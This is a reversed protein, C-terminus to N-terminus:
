KKFSINKALKGCIHNRCNTKTKTMFKHYDKSLSETPQMYSSDRPKNSSLIILLDSMTKDFKSKEDILHQQIKRILDLSRNMETKDLCIKIKKLYLDLIYFDQEQAVHAMAILLFIEMFKVQWALSLCDTRYMHMALRILNEVLNKLSRDEERLMKMASNYVSTVLSGARVFFYVKEEMNLVHVNVGENAFYIARLLFYQGQRLKIPNTLTSNRLKSRINFSKLRELMEKRTIAMSKKSQTKQKPELVKLASRLMTYLYLPSKETDCLPLRKCYFSLLLMVKTVKNGSHQDEAQLRLRTGLGLLGTWMNFIFTLRPAWDNKKYSFISAFVLFIFSVFEMLQGWTLVVFMTSIKDLLEEMNLLIDQLELQQKKTEYCSCKGTDSMKFLWCDVTKSFPMFDKVNFKLPLEKSCSDPDIGLAKEIDDTIEKDLRVLKDECSMTDEAIEILHHQNFAPIRVFLLLFQSFEATKMRSKLLILTQKIHAFHILNALKGKIQRAFLTHVRKKMGSVTYNRSNCTGKETFRVLKYGWESNERKSLIVTDYVAALYSKSQQASNRPVFCLNAVFSPYAYRRLILTRSNEVTKKEPSALCLLNRIGQCLGLFYRHLDICNEPVNCLSNRLFARAQPSFRAPFKFIMTDVKCMYVGREIRASHLSLCLLIALVIEIFLDSASLANFEILRLLKMIKNSNLRSSTLRNEDFKFDISDKSGEIKHKIIYQKLYYKEKIEIESTNLDGVTVESVNQKRYAIWMLALVHQSAQFASQVNKQGLQSIVVKLIATCTPSTETPVAALTQMVKNDCDGNLHYVYALWAQFFLIEPVTSNSSISTCLDLLAKNSDFETPEIWNILEGIEMKQDPNGQTQVKYIIASTVGRTRREFIPVIVMSDFYSNTVHEDEKQQEKFATKFYSRIIIFQYTLSKEESLCSMFTLALGFEVEPISGIKGRIFNLLDLLKGLLTNYVESQRGQLLFDLAQFLAVLCCLFTLLEELHFNDLSSKIEELFQEIYKTVDEESRSVSVICGDKMEFMVKGDSGKVILKQNNQDFIYGCKVTNPKLLLKRKEAGSNKFIKESGKRCMQALNKKNYALNYDLQFMKKYQNQWKVIFGELIKLIRMDTWAVLNAFLMLDFLSLRALRIELLQCRLEDFAINFFIDGERMVIHFQDNDLLFYINNELCYLISQEKFFTILHEDKVGRLHLLQERKEKNKDLPDDGFILFKFQTLLYGLSKKIDETPLNELTTQMMLALKNVDVIKCKTCNRLEQVADTVLLKWKKLSDETGINHVLVQNINSMWVLLKEIHELVKKKNASESNLEAVLDQVLIAFVDDIKKDEPDMEDEGNVFIIGRTTNIVYRSNGDDTIKNSTGINVAEEDESVEMDLAEKLQKICLKREVSKVASTKLTMKVENMTENTDASETEGVSALFLLIANVLHSAEEVALDQTEDLLMHILEKLIEVPNDCESVTVGNQSVLISIDKHRPRLLLFTNGDCTLSGQLLRIRFSSDQGIDNQQMIEEETQLGIEDESGISLWVLLGRLLKLLKKVSNRASLLMYVYADEFPQKLTAFLDLIDSIEFRNLAALLIIAACERRTFDDCLSSNSLKYVAVTIDEELITLEKDTGPLYKICRIGNKIFRVAITICFDGSKFYVLFETSNPETIEIWQIRDIKCKAAEALWNRRNASLSCTNKEIEGGYRNADNNEFIRILDDAVKISSLQLIENKVNQPLVEQASPFLRYVLSCFMKIAKMEQTHCYVGEKEDEALAQFMNRLFLELEELELLKSLGSNIKRISVVQNDAIEVQFEHNLFGSYFLINQKMNGPMSLLITKKTKLFVESPLDIAGDVCDEHQIFIKCLTNSFANLYSTDNRPGGMLYLLCEAATVIAERDKRSLCNNLMDMLIIQVKLSTIERPFDERMNFAVMAYCFLLALKEQFSFVQEQEDFLSKMLAGTGECPSEKQQLNVQFLPENQYNLIKWENGEKVLESVSDTYLKIQLNADDCIIDRHLNSNVAQELTELTVDISVESLIKMLKSHIISALEQPTFQILKRVILMACTKLLIKEREFFLDLKEFNKLRFIIEQLAKSIESFHVQDNDLSLDIGFNNELGPEFFIKSGIHLIPWSLLPVEEIPVMPLLSTNIRLLEMFNQTLRYLKCVDYAILIQTLEGLLGKDFPTSLKKDLGERWQDIVLSNTPTSNLFLIGLFIFLLESYNADSAGFYRKLVEEMLNVLSCDIQTGNCTLKVDRNSIDFKWCDQERHIEVHFIFPRVSPSCFIISQSVSSVPKFVNTYMMNNIDLKKIGIETYLRTYINDQSKIANELRKYNIDSGKLFDMLWIIFLKLTSSRGDEKRSHIDLVDYIPRLAGELQPLKDCESVLKLAAHCNVLLTYVMEELPNKTQSSSGEVYAKFGISIDLQDKAKASLYNQALEVNEVLYAEYEELAKRIHNQCLFLHANLYPLATM